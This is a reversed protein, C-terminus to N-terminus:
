DRMTHSSRGKDFRELTFGSSTEYLVYDHNKGFDGTNLYLKKSKDEVFEVRDAAHSHGCIVVDYGDKLRDEAKKRFIQKVRENYPKVKRSLVIGAVAAAHWTGLPGLLDMISYVFSTKLFTGACFAGSVDGHYVFVRRGDIQLSMDTCCKVGTYSEFYRGMKFEHNGELLFVRKGAHALSKLADAVDRYWPYIYDHYGHYFEFMDGLVFVMDADACCDALFLQLIRSKEKDERLLHVDSFFVAKM